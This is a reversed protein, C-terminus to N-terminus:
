LLFGTLQSEKEIGELFEKGSTSIARLEDLEANVRQLLMGKAIAVACRSKSYNQNKVYCSVVICVTEMVKSSRSKRFGINKYSLLM